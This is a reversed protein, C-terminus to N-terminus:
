RPPVGSSEAQIQCKIREFIASFEDKLYPPEKITSCHSFIHDRFIFEMTLPNRDSEVARRLLADLSLQKDKIGQALIDLDDISVFYMHELPILAGGAYGAAIEEIKDKAVYQYFNTGNGLYLDKFTVVLLYNEGDAIPIGAVESLGSIRSATDYGQEIAKLISNGARDRIVGPIDSVMGLYGVDVGKADIFVRAKGDLVLFDTLKGQPNLNASLRDENIYCLGSNSIAREVYREFIRGFKDM